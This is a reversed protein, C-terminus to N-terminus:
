RNLDLEVLPGHRVQTLFGSDAADWEETSLVTVNVDRGLQRTAADATARITAVDGPGIVLLDIDQPLPGAEGDYRRAWSGYIVAREVGPM